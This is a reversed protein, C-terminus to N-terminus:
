LQFQETLEADDLIIQVTFNEKPQGSFQLQIFNDQSRAQAQMFIVGSSEIVKLSLGAPLYASDFNPHVQLVIAISGSEEPTIEVLLVVQRDGLQIGLDILKARQINKVEEGNSISDKPLQTNRFEWAPTLQEPNLLSEVTSWGATFVNNFWQQLDISPSNSNITLARIDHLRDILEEIPKLNAITLEETVVQVVFGMLTARKLSDDIRVITYGLRLDWVEMPIYCSTDSNKLPRCELKGLSSINLDAVNDCTRMIPNWSDSSSLNTAIGLMELYNKVTLVALTNYLVQEAKQESTQQAAFNHAVARNESTIPLPIAINEIDQLNSVM